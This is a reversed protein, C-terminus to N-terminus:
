HSGLTHLGPYNETQPSAGPLKGGGTRAPPTARYTTWAKRKAAEADFAARKEPPIKHPKPPAHVVVGSVTHPDSAAAGSPRKGGESDQALGVSAPAAFGTAGAVIIVLLRFACSRM